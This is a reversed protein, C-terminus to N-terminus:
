HSVLEARLEEEDASAPAVSAERVEHDDHDRARKAEEFRHQELLLYAVFFFIVVCPVFSLFLSMGAM